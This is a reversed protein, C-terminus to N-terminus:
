ESEEEEDTYIPSFKPKREQPKDILVKIVNENKKAEEAKKQREIDKKAENAWYSQAENYFRPVLAISKHWYDNKDPIKKVQYIYLLTQGMGKCTYGYTNMLKDAQGNIAPGPMKLVFVKCVCECFYPYDPDNAIFLKKKQPEEDKKLIKQIKSSQNWCFRHYYKGEYSPPTGNCPDIWAGCYVCYYKEM